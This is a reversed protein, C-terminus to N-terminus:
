RADEIETFMYAGVTGDRHEIWWVDGGAGAAWGRYTAEEGPRRADIYRQGVLFGQCQEPTYELVDKIRCRTGSEPLVNDQHSQAIPKSM